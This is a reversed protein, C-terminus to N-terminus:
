SDSDGDEEEEEDVNEEDDGCGGSGSAGGSEFRGVHSTSAQKGELWAISRMMLTPAWIRWGGWRRKDWEEAMIDEPRARRIKDVDYTGTTPDKVWPQAQIPVGKKTNYAKQLHQLAPMSKEALRPVGHAHGEHDFQTRPVLDVGHLPPYMHSLLPSDEVAVNGGHSWSCCILREGISEPVDPDPDEPHNDNYNSTVSPISLHDNDM